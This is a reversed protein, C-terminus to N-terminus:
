EWSNYYTEQADWQHGSPAEKTEFPVGNAHMILLGVAHKCPRKRSPCSCEFSSNRVDVWTAYEDSSGIAIGWLIGEHQAFESWKNPKATKKSATVANRDPAIGEADKATLLPMADFNGVLRFEEREEERQKAQWWSYLPVRQEDPWQEMNSEAYDIIMKREDVAEEPFSSIHELLARWSAPTAEESLIERMQAISEDVDFGTKKKKRKAMALEQKRDSGIM